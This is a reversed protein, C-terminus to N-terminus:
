KKYKVLLETRNQVNLKRYIKNSHFTVGAYTIKLTDAIMKISHDTLLLDLVKKEQSTLKSLDLPDAEASTIKSRKRFFLFVTLSLALIVIAIAIFLWYRSVTTGPTDWRDGEGFIGNSDPSGIYSLHDDEGVTDNRFQFTPHDIIAVSLAHAFVRPSGIGEMATNRYGVPANAGYIIGGTKRFSGRSGTHFGGGMIRATNNMIVGGEMTFIAFGAIYVGGGLALPTQVNNTNGRIVGGRM